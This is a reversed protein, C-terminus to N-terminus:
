VRDHYTLQIMSVSVTSLVRMFEIVVFSQGERAIFVQKFKGDHRM